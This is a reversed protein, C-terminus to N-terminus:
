FGGIFPHFLVKAEVNVIVLLVPDQINRNHFEYVVIPCIFSCPLRREHEEHSIVRMSIPYIARGRNWLHRKPDLLEFLGSCSCLFQHNLCLLCPHLMPFRRFEPNPVLHPKFPAVQLDCLWGSFKRGLSVSRELNYLHHGRDIIVKFKGRLPADMWHEVNIKERWVSFRGSM